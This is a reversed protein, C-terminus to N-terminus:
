RSQLPQMQPYCNYWCTAEGLSLTTGEQALDGRFGNTVVHSDCLDVSWGLTTQTVHEADSYPWKRPYNDSCPDVLTNHENSQAWHVEQVNISRMTQAGDTAHIHLWNDGMRMYTSGTTVWVVDDDEDANADDDDVDEEETLFTKM